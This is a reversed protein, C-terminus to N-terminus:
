YPKPANYKLRAFEKCAADINEYEYRFGYHLPRTPLVRQGEVMMRARTDGFALKLAFAPLPLLSPRWLARGFAVAFDKNTTPTPAVGNLVGTM